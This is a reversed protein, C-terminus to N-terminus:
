DKHIFAPVLRVKVAASLADCKGTEPDMVDAFPPLLAKLTERLETDDGGLLDLVGLLDDNTIAGGVVGELQGEANPAFAFRARQLRFEVPTSIFRMRFRLTFPGGAFGGDQRRVGDVFGLLPDADLTFTQNPLLMADTGLLPTGAGYRFVAGNESGAEGDLDMLEVLLLLGGDRISSAVTAPVINAVQPPLGSLIAGLQNDIGPVGEPSTFDPANCGDPDRHGSQFGDIDFGPLTGDSAKVAFDILDAAYIPGTGCVNELACKALDKRPAPADAGCAFLPLLALAALTLRSYM